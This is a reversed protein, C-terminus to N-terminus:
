SIIGELVPDRESLQGKLAFFVAGDLNLKKEILLSLLETNKNSVAHAVLATERGLYKLNAGTEILKFVVGGMKHELAIDLATDGDNNQANIDATRAVSLSAVGREDDSDYQRYQGECEVMRDLLVLAIDQHSERIAIMLPTNGDADRSDLDECGSELLLDVASMAGFSVLVHLAMAGVFPWGLPTHVSDPDLTRWLTALKRMTGSDSNWKM